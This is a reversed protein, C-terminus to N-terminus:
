HAKKADNRLMKRRQSLMHGFLVPFLPIYLFMYFILFYYYNFVFNWANPMSITFLKKEHVEPLSHYMCLLEGTIGLPYLVLFTSYRYYLFTTDHIQYKIISVKTSLLLTNYLFLYYSLRNWLIGNTDDSWTESVADDNCNCRKAM